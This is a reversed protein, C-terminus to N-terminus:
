KRRLEDLAAASIRMGLWERHGCERCVHAKEAEAWLMIQPPWTCQCLKYGLAKAAAAESAKLSREAQDIQQQMQEKQRKPLLEKASKFIDLAAKSATLYEAVDQIFEM